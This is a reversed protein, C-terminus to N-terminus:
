KPIRAHVQRAARRNTLAGEGDRAPPVARRAGARADLWANAGTPTREEDPCACTWSCANSGGTSECGCRAAAM